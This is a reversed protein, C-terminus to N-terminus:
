ANELAYLALQDPRMVVIEGQVVKQAVYDIVEDHWEIPWLSPGSVGNTSFDHGMLTLLTGYKICNDIREKILAVTGGVQDLYAVKLGFLEADLGCSYHDYSNLVGRGIRLGRGKMATILTENFRGQVYANYQSTGVGQTWGRLSNLSTTFDVMYPALAQGTADNLDDFRTNTVQHPALLHGQQSFELLDQDTLNNATGILNQQIALGAKLGYQNLKPIVRTKWIPFSDDYTIMVIGKNKRPMLIAQIWVSTNATINNFRVRTDSLTDTGAIFTNSNANHLAGVSFMRSGNYLMNSSNLNYTQQYFRSYGSTGAYCIVQNFKTYDEIWVKFVINGDFNAINLGTVGVDINGAGAVLNVKLAPGGFPSNNDIAVTSTNGGGNTVVVGTTDTFGRLIEPQTFPQAFNVASALDGYGVPAGPTNPLGKLIVDDSVLRPLQTYNQGNIRTKTPM